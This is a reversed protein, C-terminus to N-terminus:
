LGVPRCRWRPLGRFRADTGPVNRYQTQQFEQLGVIDVGYDNLLGVSWGMRTEAGAFDRGGNRTHSAGLVNHTAIEFTVKEPAVREIPAPRPALKQPGAAQANRAATEADDALGRSLTGDRDTPTTPTM